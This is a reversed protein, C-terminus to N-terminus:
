RARRYSIHAGVQEDSMKLIDGLLVKLTHKDLVMAGYGTIENYDFSEIAIWRSGIYSSM